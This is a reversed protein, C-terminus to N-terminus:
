EYMKAPDDNGYHIGGVPDVWPENVDSTPTEVVEEKNLEEKINMGLGQLHHPIEIQTDIFM